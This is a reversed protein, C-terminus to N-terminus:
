RREPTPQRSQNQTTYSDQSSNAGERGQGQSYAQAERPTTGPNDPQTPPGQGVASAAIHSWAYAMYGLAAVLVVIIAIQIPRLRRRPAGTEHQTM